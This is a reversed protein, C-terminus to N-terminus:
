LSGGKLIKYLNEKEYKRTYFSTILMEILIIFAGSCIIFGLNGVNFIFSLVGAMVVGLLSFIFSLIYLKKVREFITYGLVKKISLEILNIQYELKIISLTILIEQLLLMISLVINLYLSRSLVQKRYNFQSLANTIEYDLSYKDTYNRVEKENAKILLKDFRIFFSTIGSQKQWNLEDENWIKYNNTHNLLIIPNKIWISGNISNDDMCIMKINDKYRILQTHEDKEDSYDAAFEKLLVLSENSILDEKPLIVYSKSNFNYERLEKINEKLYPLMNINACIIRKTLSNGLDINKDIMKIDFRLLNKRYFDEENQSSDNNRSKFMVYNYDSNKKFFDEQRYYEICEYIVLINASLIITTLTVTAAKIFYNISLISKSSQSNSLDRKINCSNFFLYLLSNSLLLILFMHISTKICFMPTTIRKLFFFTTIFIIAYMIIDLLINKIIINKKREGLTIKILVEKKQYLLDYMTLLINLLIIITWVITVISRNEKLTNVSEKQPFNGGYNDILESKFNNINEQKGLLFYDPNNKILNDPAKFFDKCIVNTTGTFISSYKGENILCTKNIYSFINKKGYIDVQSKNKDKVTRNIIFVSINNKKACKYIDDLMEKSTSEKPVYFSTTYFDNFNNIYIQFIEGIISFGIIIIVTMILYKMHKM